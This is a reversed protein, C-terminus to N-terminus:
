VAYSIGLHSSNLRTSKRDRHRWLGAVQQLAGLTGHQLFGEAEVLETLHERAESSPRPTAGAAALLDIVPAVRGQKVGGRLQSGNGRATGSSPIGTPRGGILRWASGVPTTRTRMTSSEAASASSM